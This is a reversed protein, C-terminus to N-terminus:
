WEASRPTGRRFEEIRRRTPGATAPPLADLPFVGRDRIELGITGGVTGDFGRIVFLVVHDGPFSVFNSYVGFLEPTDRPRVGTEEAIERRVATITNEGRDVGGGPLHWGEIYGHKVLVVGGADDLVIARVGLTVGRTLRWIPRILMLGLRHHLKLDALETRQDSATSTSM